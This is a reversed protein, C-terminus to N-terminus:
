CARRRRDGARAPRRGHRHLLVAHRRRRRLDRRPGEGPAPHGAAPHVARRGPGDHDRDAGPDRHRAKELFDQLALCNMVTGLMGMYDARARDMGRKSLEAGRFFNGGGVVVAVQVGARVVEAIQRAISASSTPTSASSAAASCRAPSSSCRRAPVSRRCRDRPTPRPEVAETSAPGRTPARGGASTGVSLRRGRVPRVAHRRRRGRDLVQRSRRRTTRSRRSSSCSSTRSSATSGARSSRPCRRRPSARRAPPRRPSAASTARGVDAPVEDRTLYQPRMAAIQMARTARPPRADDGTSSSWCASRRRCTAASATCTPRRGRRRARRGPQARDERRDRRWRRHQEAVTQGDALEDRAAGDRTPRSPARRRADVIDDALQQFQENKAVFDTECNLELLAGGAHPSWATPPATREAGRKGVGQGGKVRLIEVAKDFDGDAEDLAKKCDMMGAGTLTASSRSTRPPSLEGHHEERRRRDTTPHRRGDATARPTAARGSALSPTPRLSPARCPEARGHRSPTPQLSPEAAARPRRRRGRSRPPSSRGRRGRAPRGRGRGPTATRAPRDSGRRRSRQRDRGRRPPAEATACRRRGPETAAEPARSSCSASGSPWRSTPPSARRRSPTRRRPAGSRAMLGDAVADAIVRTLLSVSRIADDNGPIPYDVEDPDCNTDLIAVVPIGLKRAEDVAIHEKKTDVIWVAGPVQPWTASAASPASSSTRRAAAASCSRRPAARSGAVDDFDIEELEKLRQLRKHVTQFNTLMGGLWRQNVYPMGVRTAQEAIPRRPRSRPASSCSRAATPSPRRSSSTPATSTAVAVAAPRHHLHRQARHLHLAEDEPELAPDPARLPRRERAAAAHHRRGHGHRRTTVGRSRSPRRDPEDGRGSAPARDGVRARRGFRGAVTLSRGRAATRPTRLRSTPRTAAGLRACPACCGFDVAPGDCGGTWLWGSPELWHAATPGPHLCAGGAM